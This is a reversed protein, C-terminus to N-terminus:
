ITELQKNKKIFYLGICNGISLLLMLVMGVEMNSSFIILLIFWIVTEVVSAIKIYKLFLKDIEHFYFWIGTFTVFLLILFNIFILFNGTQYNSTFLLRYASVSITITGPFMSGMNSALSIYPFALFLLHLAFSITTWLSIFLIKKHKRSPVNENSTEPQNVKRPEDKMLYDLSCNYLESLQILKATEPYAIDSEWKSISQRSVNLIQALQEQTYNQEKRLKALKEGITM